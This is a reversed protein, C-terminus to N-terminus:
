WKNNKIREVINEAQKKNFCYGIVTGSTERYWPAIYYEDKFGNHDTFQITLPEGEANIQGSYKAPLIGWDAWCGIIYINKAKKYKYKLIIQKINFM